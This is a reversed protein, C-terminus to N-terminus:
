FRQRWALGLQGPGAALSGRAAARRKLGLGLLVAGAGLLVGGAAAGAIGITNGTQIQERAADRQGPETEFTSVGTNAWGLGGAMTALGAVGLGALVSGTIILSRHGVAPSGQPDAAPGPEVSAPPGEVVPESPQPPVPEREADAKAEVAARERAQQEDIRRQVETLAEDAEALRAAEAAPLAQRYKDLLDRAVYLHQLEGDVGHAGVHARHLAWQVRRRLAAADPDLSIQDYLRTLLEIAEDYDATDIRAQAVQWLEGIDESAPETAPGTRILSAVVSRPPMGVAVVVAASLLRRAAGSGAAARWAM